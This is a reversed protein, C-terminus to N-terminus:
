DLFRQWGERYIVKQGTQHVVVIFKEWRADQGASVVLVTQDDLWGLVGKMPHLSTPSSKETRSVSGEGMEFHTSASSYTDSFQRPLLPVKSLFGYKHTKPDPNAPANAGNPIDFIHLTSKDSTVALMSDHPSFALSFIAAEDIGRRFEALLRGSPYAWLRIITGKESATALMDGKKNLALARLPSSHAPIITTNQNADVLKVQGANKGPMAVINNELSCLGFPNTATSFHAIRVPPNKMQYIGVSTTTAVVLKEPSVRARLVLDPLELTCAVRQTADNWIHVKNPPINPPNGGGALALYATTGVMEACGIGGDMDRHVKMDCTKSNYVRFGTDLGVSFFSNDANFSASLALPRTYPDLVPRTNM